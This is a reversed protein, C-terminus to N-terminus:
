QMLARRRLAESREVELGLYIRYGPGVEPTVGAFRQRVSERSGGSTQGAPLTVNATFVQKDIISGDPAAVAVFWPVAVSPGTFAPGPEVVLDISLDVTLADGDYTCGGGINQMGVVFALDEGAGTSTGGRFVSNTDLGALIGPQPCVPQGPPPTETGSCGAAGLALLLAASSARLKRGSGALPVWGDNSRRM